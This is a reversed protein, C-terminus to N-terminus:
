RGASNPGDWGPRYASIVMVTRGGETMDLIKARDAQHRTLAGQAEKEVEPLSQSASPGAAVLETDRYYEIRLEM